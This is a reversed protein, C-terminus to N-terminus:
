TNSADAKVISSVIPTYYHPLLEKGKAGFRSVCVFFRDRASSEWMNSIKRQSSPINRIDPYVDELLKGAPIYALVVGTKEKDSGHAGSTWTVTKGVYNQYDPKPKPKKM